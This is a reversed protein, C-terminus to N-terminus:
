GVAFAKPKHLIAKVQRRVTCTIWRWHLAGHVTLVAVFLLASWLHLDRWGHRTLTLFLTNYFLNRGGQFGGSPLVFELLLGSISVLAFVVLLLGDLWFNCRAQEAVKGFIRGAICTIWRWHLILHMVSGILLGMAVWVHIIVWDHQTVGLFPAEQNGRGGLMVQWLLLGVTVTLIFLGFLLSDLWFNITAKNTM